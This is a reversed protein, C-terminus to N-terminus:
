IKQIFKRHILDQTVSNQNERQIKKIREITNEIAMNFWGLLSVHIFM